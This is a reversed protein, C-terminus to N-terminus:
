FGLFRMASNNLVRQRFRAVTTHDPRQNAALVRYAGGGARIVTDDRSGGDVVIVEANPGATTSRM